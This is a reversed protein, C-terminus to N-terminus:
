VEELSDIHLKTYKKWTPRLKSIGQSISVQKELNNSNNYFGEPEQSHCLM